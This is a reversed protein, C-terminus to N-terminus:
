ADLVENKSTDELQKHKKQEISWLTLLDEVLRQEIKKSQKTPCFLSMTIKIKGIDTTSVIFAPQPGSIKIDLRTEILTNYREAVDSFDACYQNAKEIMVDRIIFPNFNTDERVISFSHNVYRRMYNLNIIPLMILQSNPVFVSRGTYSHDKPDLELLTVKAWDTATVEGTFDKTQIWDGVRFPNTSSIYIFGVVCQIIEKTALVIAVIFAAISLAFRQLEASWLAFLSIFLIANIVNKTNNILYRKDAVPKSSKKSLVLSATKALGRLFSSYFM